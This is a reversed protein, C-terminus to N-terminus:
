SGHPNITSAQEAAEYVQRNDVVADAVASLGEVVGTLSETLSKLKAAVAASCIGADPAPPVGAAKGDLAKSAGDLRRAINGHVGPTLAYGDGSGTGSWPSFRSL